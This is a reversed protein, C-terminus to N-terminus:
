SLPFFKGLAFERFQDANRSVRDGVPFLSPRLRPDFVDVLEGLLKIAIDPFDGSCFRGFIIRRGDEGAPDHDRHDAANGSSAISSNSPSISTGSRSTEPFFIM